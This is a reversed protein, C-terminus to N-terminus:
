CSGDTAEGEGMEEVRALGAYWLKDINGHVGSLYRKNGKTYRTFEPLPTDACVVSLSTCPHSIAMDSSSATM